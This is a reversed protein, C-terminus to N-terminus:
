AAVAAEYLAMAEEPTRDIGVNNTEEGIPETANPFIVRYQQKEGTTPKTKLFQTIPMVTFGNEGGAVIADEGDLSILDDTQVIDWSKFQRAFRFEDTRKKYAQLAQVFSPMHETPEYKPQIMGIASLFMEAAKLGLVVNNDRDERWGSELCIAPIGKSESYGDTGGPETKDWGYSVVVIGQPRVESPEAIAKAIKFGRQATIIFPIGDKQSFEHADFVGADGQSLVPLLDQGRRVEYPLESYKAIEEPTLERFCRNLNIEDHRKGKRIASPNAHSIVILNGQHPLEIEGAMVRQMIEPGATEHGHVGGIFVATPGSLGTYGVHVGEVARNDQDYYKDWLM